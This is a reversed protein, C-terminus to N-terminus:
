GGSPMASRISRATSRWGTSIIRCRSAPSRAPSATSSSSPERDRFLDRDSRRGAERRPGGGARHRARGQAGALSAIRRALAEPVGAKRSSPWARTARPRRRNRCRATSRPRSRRSATATIRSSRRWGKRSISMACSGSWGTSCCIRCPPMFRSSRDQRVGQQRARRDRRQARGPRLQQAGGRLRRRDRGAARRDPRRHARDADAGGRNIM